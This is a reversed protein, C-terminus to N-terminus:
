TFLHSLAVLCLYCFFLCLASWVAIRWLRSKDADAVSARLIEAAMQQQEPPLHALRGSAETLPPAAGAPADRRMLTIPPCSGVRVERVVEFGLRAYFTLNAPNSSELYAPLGAADIADVVHRAFRSGHGKGQASQHTGIFALYCHPTSGMVAKHHADMAVILQGVRRMSGLGLRLSLLPLGSRVLDMVSMEDNPPWWIQAAIPAKTEKDRAYFAGLSPRRVRDALHSVCLWTDAWLEHSRPGAPEMLWQWVPDDHFASSLAAVLGQRNREAESKSASEDVIRVIEM